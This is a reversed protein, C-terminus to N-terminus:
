HSALMALAIAADLDYFRGVTEPAGNGFRLVYYAGDREWWYLQVLLGEATRFTAWERRASTQIDDAGAAVLKARLAATRAAEAAGSDNFPKVEGVAHVVAGILEDLDFPKPVVAAFRAAQSRDSTGEIAERSAPAHATFMVVPVPRGRAHAWAATKWSEDYSGASNSDLLVCDPEFRNVAVRVAEPGVANLTSVAYGEDTLVARVLESMTQDDDVVLVKRLTPDVAM